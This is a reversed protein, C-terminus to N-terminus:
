MLGWPTHVGTRCDPAPDTEERSNGRSVPPPGPGLPELVDWHPPLRQPYPRTHPCVPGQSGAPLAVGSTYEVVVGLVRPLVEGAKSVRVVSPVEVIGGVDTDM